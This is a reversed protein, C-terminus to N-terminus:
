NTNKKIVKAPVGVSVTREEVDKIVVSGAGIISYQGITISDKLTSGVGIFCALNVNVLGAISVSPGLFCHSNIKTHHAITCGTNCLVNDGLECEMDITCGPLIFLGEGLKVSKDIYSSSHIVNAFPIKNKYRNFLEVRAKMQVYGIGIILYDFKKNEFDKLINETKGLINEGNTFDDYYGVVEFDNEAHYAILKGLLSSGIIALKKM